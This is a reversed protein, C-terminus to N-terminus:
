RPIAYLRLTPSAAVVPLQLPWDARTLVDTVGFEQRIRTWEALGYQEWVRRSTGSAVQGRRGADPPPELLSQGYVSRLIREVTPAADLAYPLTDLTAGELLVPRRTRLQALWIDAGTLLPGERGAAVSWVPDDIRLSMPEAALRAVPFMVSLTATVVIAVSYLPTLLSIRAAGIREIVHVAAAALLPGAAFVSINILRAPMAVVVVDPLRAPDIWTLGALLLSAAAALALATLMLRSAASRTRTTWVCAFILVVVSM